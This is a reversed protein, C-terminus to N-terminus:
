PDDDARHRQENDPLYHLPHPLEAMEPVGAAGTLGFVGMPRMRRIAVAVRLGPAATGGGAGAGTIFPLLTPSPSPPIRIDSREYCDM